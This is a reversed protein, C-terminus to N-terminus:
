QSSERPRTPRDGRDEVNQAYDPARSPTAPEATTAEVPPAVEVARPAAVPEPNATVAAVSAPAESPPALANRIPARTELASREVADVRVPALESPILLLACLVFLLAGAILAICTAWRWEFFDRVVRPARM